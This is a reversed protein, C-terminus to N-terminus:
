KKFFFFSFHFFFFRIQGADVGTKFARAAIQILEEEENTLYM